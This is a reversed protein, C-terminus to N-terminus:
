FKVSNLVIVALCNDFYPADYLALQVRMAHTVLLWVIAIRLIATDVPENKSTKKFILIELLVVGTEVYGATLRAFRIPDLHRHGLPTLKEEYIKLSNM